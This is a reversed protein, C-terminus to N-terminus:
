RQWGFAPHLWVEAAGSPDREAFRELADLETTAVNGYQIRNVTEYSFDANWVHMDDQEAGYADLMDFTGNVTVTGFEVGHGKLSELLAFTDKALGARRLGETMNDAIPFTVYLDEGYQTVRADDVAGVAEDAKERNTMPADSASSSSSPAQGAPDAAGGGSFATVGGIIAVAALAATAVKHRAFWSRGPLPAGGPGAPETTAGAAVFTKVGNIETWPM